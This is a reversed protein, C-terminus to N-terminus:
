KWWEGLSRFIKTADSVNLGLKLRHMSAGLFSKVTVRDQQKVLRSEKIRQAVARIAKSQYKRRARYGRWLTQIKLAAVNRKRLEIAEPSMKEYWLKRYATRALVGRCLSQMRVIVRKKHETEKRVQRGMLVAKLRQQLVTVSQKIQVFQERERKMAQQARFRRQVMIILERRMQYEAVAQRMESRKRWERQITMTAWRLRQYEEQCRRREVWLRYYMQLTEAARERRKLEQRVLFGRVCKQIVIASQRVRLFRTRQERMLLTARFRRQVTITYRRLQQYEAVAVRMAMRARWQTQLTIAAHKLEVFQKRKIRMLQTARWRRQVGVILEKKQAYEQQVRRGTQRARWRRQLLVTASKLEQFRNREVRMERTARWRRQIVVGAMRMEEFSSRTARALRTARWRRQVQVILRRDEAYKRRCVDRAKNARVWRQLKLAATRKREFEGREKKMEQTARWRVQIVKVAIKTEMFRETERKMELYGRFFRQVKIIREKVGRYERRQRKMALQARFQRQVTVTAWKLRLYSMRAEKALMKAQYKEGVFNVARKLQLFKGREEEMAVNARFRRQVAVTAQKVRGFREREVRMRKYGRYFRQIVTVSYQVRVFDLHIRRMLRYDRFRRQIVLTARKVELFRRREVRMLRTARFRRQVTVTARKLEAFGQFDRRGQLKARFRQQVVVAARKLEEFRKVERRRSLNARFRRQVAVTAGRLGLFEKRQRAMDKNRRWWRQIEVAAEKMAMFRRRAVFARFYTQVVVAAVHRERFYEPLMKRCRYGRFYRQVVQAAGEWREERRKVIRVDLERRLLRVRWWRQVIGAAANFKPARFRYILQWLLSLTKERHGDVIDKPAIDGHIQYDAEQLAKLGVDVNHVKQLRSVAPYRLQRTLDDRLLIIEMVKTLRIGDRLDVALNTFAYDFEDLYTQKHVLSIGLRKVYKTIDGINAILQSAVKILIEKTEKYQSTRTFLCPNHKIIRREKAADLFVILHLLKRLAFKKIQEAYKATLAFNRSYKNELYKDRFLRNLVFSTLGYVDANSTLPIEEGFVVELGIRLWLPNFCLLLELIGRQLVLDLHLNRDERMGIQRKEILVDLKSLPVVIVESTYLEVASRRLLPMRYRTFYKCSVSEKTPALTEKKNHRVENFIKGVDLGQAGSGLNGDMEVPVTVLANLWNKFQKEYKDTAREDLYMTASLFPDHTTTAAFPDPNIAAQVHMEADYFVRRKEQKVMPVQCAMKLLSNTDTLNHLRSTSLSLQQEQQEKERRAKAALRVAQSWKVSSSSDVTPKRQTSTTKPPSLTMFPTKVRSAAPTMSFYNKDQATRLMRESNTKVLGTNDPLEHINSCSSQARIENERFLICSSDYPNSPLQHQHNNQPHASPPPHMQQNAAAAAAAMQSYYRNNEISNISEIEHLNPMSGQNLKLYEQERTKKSSLNRMSRASKKQLPTTVINEVSKAITDLLPFPAQFVHSQRNHTTSHCLSDAIATPPPTLIRTQNVDHNITM